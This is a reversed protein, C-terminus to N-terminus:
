RRNGFAARASAVRRVEVRAHQDEARAQLTVFDLGALEPVTPAVAALSRWLSQKGHIGIVLLELSELPKLGGPDDLILKLRGAKEAM